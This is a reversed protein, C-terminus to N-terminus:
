QCEKPIAASLARLKPLWARFCPIDDDQTGSLGHIVYLEAFANLAMEVKHEDHSSSEVSMELMAAEVLKRDHTREMTLLARIAAKSFDQSIKPNAVKAPQTQASALLVCFLWLSSLIKM